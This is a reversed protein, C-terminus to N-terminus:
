GRSARAGAPGPRGSWAAPPAPSSATRPASPRGRAGARRRQDDRPAIRARPRRVVGALYRELIPSLYADVVATEARPLLKILPALESSLSVYRFGAERLM